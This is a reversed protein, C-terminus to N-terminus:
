QHRLRFVAVAVAAVGVCALAVPAAFNTTDGTNAIKGGSPESPKTGAPKEPAAPADYSNDFLASECKEGAANRVIVKTFLTDTEEDWLCYATVDYVAEDYAWNDASGAVQRVTYHHEGVEDFSLSFSTTGAGSVSVESTQPLVTEGEAPAITATFTEPESAKDGSTVFEVPVTATVPQYRSAAQASAPVLALAVLAAAFACSLLAGFRRVRSAANHGVHIAHM